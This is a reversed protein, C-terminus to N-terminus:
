DPWSRTIQASASATEACPMFVLLLATTQRSSPSIGTISCPSTTRRVRRGSSGISHSALCDRDRTSRIRYRPSAGTRPRQPFCNGLPRIVNGQRSPAACFADRGPVTTADMPDSRHYRAHLSSHTAHLECIRVWVACASQIWSNSAPMSRIADPCMKFNLTVQSCNLFCTRM